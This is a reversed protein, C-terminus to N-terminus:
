KEILDIGIISTSVVQGDIVVSSTRLKPIFTGVLKDCGEVDTYLQYPYLLGYIKTESEGTILKYNELHGWSFGQEISGYSHKGLKAYLDLQNTVGRINTSILMEGIPQKIKGELFETFKPEDGLDCTGLLVTIFGNDNPNLTDTNIESIALEPNVILEPLYKRELEGIYNDKREITAALKYVVDILEAVKNGPISIDESSKPNKPIRKQIDEISDAAIFGVHVGLLKKM